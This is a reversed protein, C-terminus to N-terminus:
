AKAPGGAYILALLRGNSTVGAKEHIAKVHSHVTHFSIGYHRAIEKYALGNALALAVVKEMPTFGFRAIGDLGGAERSESTSM